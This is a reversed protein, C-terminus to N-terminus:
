KRRRYLEAKLIEFRKWLQHMMRDPADREDAREIAARLMNIESHLQETSYKRPNQGANSEYEARREAVKRKHEDMANKKNIGSLDLFEFVKSLGRVSQGYITPAYGGTVRDYHKKMGDKASAVFDGAIEGINAVPDMAKAKQRNVEAASNLQNAQAKLLALTGMQFGKDVTSSPTSGGLASGPPTTADFKGALIPNVGAAKLDDFRRQVATNSMKELFAHQAQQQHRNYKAQANQLYNQQWMGGIQQAIQAFAAWGSM